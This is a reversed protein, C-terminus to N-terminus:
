GKEGEGMTGMKERHGGPDAEALSGAGIMITMELHPRTFSKWTLPGHKMGKPVYVSSTKDIMLPEGDLVFEIEGGLDEEDSSDTGIHMVIEDYDHTHEGIHPNPDPMGLIWGAEVYMNSGPVLNNSMLTMASIRGKVEFAPILEYAPRSVLYKAGGSKPLDEWGDKGTM